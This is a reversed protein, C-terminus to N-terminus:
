QQTFHYSVTWEQGKGLDEQFDDGRNKFDSLDSTKSEAILVSKSILGQSFRIIHVNDFHFCLWLENDAHDEFTEMLCLKSDTVVYLDVSFM